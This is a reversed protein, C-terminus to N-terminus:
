SFSLASLELALAVCADRGDEGNGLKDYWQEPIWKAGHLAAGWAGDMAAIIDSDGGGQSMVSQSLAVIAAAQIFPGEIGEPCVHTCLLADQLAM